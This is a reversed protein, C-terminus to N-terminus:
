RGWAGAAAARVAYEEFTRAPRGLVTAVDDTTAAIVGREMMVFMEAVHDADGEGWGAEVLSSALEAPSVQKYLMPRGSARSILDVAEAPRDLDLLTAGMRELLRVRRDLARTREADLRPGVPTGAFPEGRWTALAATGKELVTDRTAEGSLAAAAADHFRHLDVAERPLDLRYTEGIPPIPLRTGDDPAERRLRSVLVQLAGDPREPLDEGWIEDILAPVAVTGRCASAILALLTRLRRGPRVVEGSAGEIAVEGLVRIRIGDSSSM